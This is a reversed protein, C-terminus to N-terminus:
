HGDNEGDDTNSEFPFFICSVRVKGTYRVGEVRITKEIQVVDLM